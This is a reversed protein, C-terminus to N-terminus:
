LSIDSDELLSDDFSVDLSNDIDLMNRGAPEVHLLSIDQALNRHVVETKGNNDELKYIHTRPNSDVVTYVTPDWEDALKKKGREGKNALLVRAGVNLCTGKVRWNIAVITLLWQIM